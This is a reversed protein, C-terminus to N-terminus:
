KTPRNQKDLEDKLLYISKRINEMQSLNLDEIRFETYTGSVEDYFTIKDKEPYSVHYKNDPSHIKKAVADKTHADVFRSFLIYGIYSLLTEKMYITKDKDDNDDMGIGHELILNLTKLELTDPCEFGSDLGCRRIRLAEIATPSLGTASCIDTTEKRPHPQIDLLYDSDCNLASCMDFWVDITPWSSAKKPSIYNKFTEYTIHLYKEAFVRQTIKRKKLESKIIRCYTNRDVKSFPLFNDM